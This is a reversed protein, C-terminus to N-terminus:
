SSSAEFMLWTDQAPGNPGRWALELTGDCDFMKALDSEGPLTEHPAWVRLGLGGASSPFFQALKQGTMPFPLVSFFGTEGHVTWLKDAGPGQLFELLAPMEVDVIVDEM